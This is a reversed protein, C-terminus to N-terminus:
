LEQKRKVAVHRIDADALKTRRKGFGQDLVSLEHTDQDILQSIRKNERIIENLEEMNDLQDLNLAKQQKQVSDIEEKDDEFKGCDSRLQAIRRMKKDLVTKKAQYDQSGLMAKYLQEFEGVKDNSITLLM